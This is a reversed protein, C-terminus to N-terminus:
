IVVRRRGYRRNQSTVPDVNMRREDEQTICRQEDRERSRDHIQDLLPGELRLVRGTKMVPQGREVDTIVKGVFRVGDSKRQDREADYGARQPCLSDTTDPR